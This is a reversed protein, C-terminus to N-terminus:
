YRMHQRSEAKKRKIRAERGATSIKDRYKGPVQILAKETVSAHKEMSISLGMNALKKLMDNFERCTAEMENLKQRKQDISLKQKEEPILFNYLFSGDPNFRLNLYNNQHPIRFLFDSQKEFDIVEMGDAVNYNMDKLCRVLQAKLFLREKHLLAKELCIAENKDMLARFRGAISDHETAKVRERQIIDFCDSALADREPGLDPDIDIGNLVEVISLIDQKRKIANEAELIDAHLERFYFVDTALSSEQLEKLQKSYHHKRQADPITAILSEIEEVQELLDDQSRNRRGPDSTGPINSLVKGAIESRVENASAKYNESLDNVCEKEKDACERFRFVFETKPVHLPINEIAKRSEQYIEPFDDQLYSALYELVHKRFAKLAIITQEYYIEYQLYENYDAQKNFFDQKQNQLEGILKTLANIKEDLKRALHNYTSQGFTGSVDLTFEKLMESIRQRNRTIYDKCDFFIGREGDRVEFSSIEDFCRQISSQLNFIKQLRGDFVSASYRPPPSSYSKPGSM